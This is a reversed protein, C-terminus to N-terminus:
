ASRDWRMLAVPQPYHGQCWQFKHAVEAPVQADLGVPRFGLSAYLATLHAFPVCYLQDFGPQQLLMRVIQQALGRGQFAPLVYMGGLEGTGAGTPVIRGMGAPAGDVEALVLVHSDDSPLFDIEAYRANIWDLDAATALRLTNM